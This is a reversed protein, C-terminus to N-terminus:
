VWGLSPNKMYLVCYLHISLVGQLSYNLRSGYGEQIIIVSTDRNSKSTVAITAVTINILLLLYDM